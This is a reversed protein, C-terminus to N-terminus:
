GGRRSGSAKQAAAAPEPAKDILGLAVADAMTMVRGQEILQRRLRVPLEAMSVEDGAAYTEDGISQPRKSIM